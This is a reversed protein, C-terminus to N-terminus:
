TSYILESSAPSSPADDSKVVFFSRLAIGEKTIVALFELAEALSLDPQSMTQRVFNWGATNRPALQAADVDGKDNRFGRDIEIWQNSVGVIDVEVVPGDGIQIQRKGKRGIRLIGNGNAESM